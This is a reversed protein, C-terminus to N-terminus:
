SFGSLADGQERCLPTIALSVAHWRYRLDFDLYAAAPQELTARHSLRHLCVRPLSLAGWLVRLPCLHVCANALSVSLERPHHHYLVSCHARPEGVSYQHHDPHHGHAGLNTSISITAGDRHDAAAALPDDGLRTDEHATLEPASTEPLVTADPTVSSEPAIEPDPAADPEPTPAIAPHQEDAM